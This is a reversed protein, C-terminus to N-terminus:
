KVKQIKDSEAIWGAIFSRVLLIRSADRQSGDIAGLKHSVSLAYIGHLGGWLTKVALTSDIDTRNPLTDIVLSTIVHFSSDLQQQYWPPLAKNKSATYEFLLQWKNFNQTAYDFYNKALSELASHTNKSQNHQLYATMEALTKTNIHLVVDGMSDFVMYISGITYGVALAIKRANLAAYGEEIVITEAAHLILAAIEELSHKYRRAM